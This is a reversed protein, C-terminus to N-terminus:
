LRKYAPILNRRRSLCYCVYFVYMTCVIFDTFCIPCPSLPLVVLKWSKLMFIAWFYWFKRHKLRIQLNKASCANDAHFTYMYNSRWHFSSKVWVGEQGLMTFYWRSWSGLSVYRGSAREKGNRLRKCQLTLCRIHRVSNLRLRPLMAPFHVTFDRLHPASTIPGFAGENQSAGWKSFNM